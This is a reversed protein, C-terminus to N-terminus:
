KSRVKFVAALGTKHKNINITDNEIHKQRTHKRWQMERTLPRPAEIMDHFFSNRKLEDKRWEYQITHPNGIGAHNTEDKAIADMPLAAM